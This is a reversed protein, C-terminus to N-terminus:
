PISAALFRTAPERGRFVHVGDGGGAVALLMRCLGYADPTPAVLGVRARRLRRDRMVTAAIV